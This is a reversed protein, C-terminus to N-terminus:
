ISVSSVVGKNFQAGMSSLYVLRKVSKTNMVALKVNKSSSRAHEVTDEGDLRPPTIALIADAGEFNLTTADAVDGQRAEFRPNFLFEEPAKSIDRYYGVVKPKRLDALLVSVTAKGTKTSAPIIIINYSQEINM